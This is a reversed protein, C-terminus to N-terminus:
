SAALSRAVLRLPRSSAARPGCGGARAEEPPRSRFVSLPLPSRDVFCRFRPGRRALCGVRVACPPWM